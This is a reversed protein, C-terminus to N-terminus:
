GKGGVGKREVVRVWRRRRWGGRESEVNADGEEWGSKPVIKRAKGGKKPSAAIAKEVEEDGLDYIWREGETEVEVGTLMREEVWERSALDLTWKKDKWAWGSPPQVDEFFQTGKPRAGSIRLPSLPDYPTPSFLWAEWTGSYVHHKQLEFIEVQRKEPPEDLVIDSEIWSRLLKSYSELHARLQALNKSSLIITQTDPHGLGTAAWGALLAIFRWPVLNSGLLAGCSVVFFLFFVTSSMKEDSFNTYPTVYENAADHMRSFDEMCNQLDRMNRMFDKSLDPAPKVRSAPAVAPGRFSPELRPDNAPVPHRAMFSPIMIYFLLGLFPVLPLLHPNLCLLSYVALFSLTATPQRWTFLHILRAQLVFIIGIRANFRRFNSTMLGINFNPRDVYQRSRRDKKKSNRDDEESASLAETPVVYSIISGVMRDGLTQKFGSGQIELTDKVKGVGDKLKERRSAKQQETEVESSSSPEIAEDRSPIRLSPLPEDRNAFSSSREM